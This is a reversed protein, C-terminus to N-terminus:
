RRDLVLDIGNIKMAAGAPLMPGLADPTIWTRPGFVHECRHRLEIRAESPGTPSLRYTSGVADGCLLVVDGAGTAAADYGWIRIPRDTAGENLLLGAIGSNANGIVVTGSIRLAEVVLGEVEFDDRLWTRGNWTIQAGTTRRWPTSFGIEVLLAPQQVPAGLATSLATTLTRM